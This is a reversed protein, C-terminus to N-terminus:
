FITGSALMVNPPLPVLRVTVTWGMVFATPLAVIVSVTLSPCAAVDVENVTVNRATLSGGYTEFGASRVTLLPLGTGGIGKVTHSTSVAADASVIVSLEELVVKSGVFLIASDPVLLM